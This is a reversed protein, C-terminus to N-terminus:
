PQGGRVQERIKTFNSEHVQQLDDLLAEWKEHLEDYQAILSDVEQIQEPTVLYLNESYMKLSGDKLRIKGRGEINLVEFSQRHKGKWNSGICTLTIANRRSTIEKEVAKLTTRRVDKGNITAFFKGDQPHIFVSIGDVIKIPEM